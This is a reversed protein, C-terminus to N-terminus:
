PVLRKVVPIKKMIMVCILSVIYVGVVGITRWQWCSTSFGLHIPVKWVFLWHILYIGFSGASIKQIWRVARDNNELRSWDHYQFWVFVAIALVVSPLKLYGWLGQYVDGIKQSMFLTNLFRALWGLFGCFYIIIRMKESLEIKTLQYGIIVFLLYGGCVAPNLLSTFSMGLVSFVLPIVSIFCLGYGIMYNFITKRREEPIASIVPLAFYVTFLAPFFWFISIIESNIIMSLISRVNLATIDVEGSHIKLLLFFVSWVVFPLLTKSFRKVFFDKTSYRKRYDMLTAGSLMFFVPVAWYAVTEVVLSTKWCRADSYTHVIGNCHLAVVCICAAINLLDFYLIRKSSAAKM